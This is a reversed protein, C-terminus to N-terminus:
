GISKSQYGRIIGLLSVIFIMMFRKPNPKAKNQKKTIKVPKSDGLLCVEQYAQSDRWVPKVPSPLFEMLMYLVMEYVPGWSFLLLLALQAIADMKRKGRIVSMTHSSAQRRQWRM